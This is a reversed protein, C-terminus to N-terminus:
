ENSFYAPLRPHLISKSNQVFLQVGRKRHLYEHLAELYVDFPHIKGGKPIMSAIKGKMDGGTIRQREEYFEMGPMGYFFHASTQLDVGLLVVKQFGLSNVAFEIAHSSTNRYFLTKDFDSDSFERNEKFIISDPLAYLCWRPNEPFFSPIFRPHAFRTFAKTHVLIVTDKFSAKVNAFEDVMGQRAIIDPEWSFLQYSPIHPVLFSFNIGLSNHKEIERWQEESIDLISPGSCLIFITDSKKELRLEGVTIKRHRKGRNTFFACVMEGYSIYKNIIHDRLLAKFDAFQKRTTM